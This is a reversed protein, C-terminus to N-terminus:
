TLPDETWRAVSKFPSDVEDVTLVFRKVGVVREVAVGINTTGVTTSLSWLAYPGTAGGVDSLVSSVLVSSASLLPDYSLASGPLLARVAAELYDSM